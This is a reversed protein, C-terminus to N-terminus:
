PGCGAAAGPRPRDGAEAVRGGADDDVARTGNSSGGAATATRTKLEVMVSGGRCLDLVELTPLGERRGPRNHVVVLEGDFGRARRVGRLRRRSSRAGFAPLTNAPLEASAGRHAIV